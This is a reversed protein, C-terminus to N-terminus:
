FQKLLRDIYDLEPQPRDREAGRRRLEDQIARTRQQEMEEPVMADASEDAGSTGEKLRRGLPDRRSNQSHQRSGLGKGPRQTGRGNMNQDDDGEQGDANADMQGEDGQDGAQPNGFQKALAQSMEKGGKQLAEIARQGDRQAEADDGRALAGAGDRMASDAEGLSKPVEGTLDGFQQALEGLARRLAQQVRRDANRQDRSGQSEPKGARPEGGQPTTEPSAQPSTPDSGGDAQDRNQAHDLLGGQRQVMDQLAGMQKHGRQRQQANRQEQATQASKASRLQELMKELEAMEKQADQMRGERAAQRAKEAQREMDRSDLRAAEPDNPQEGQERRLEEVLARMHDRIAQELEALKKDLEQQHEASPEKSAQDLAERVAERAAELARATREAAGEELKLALQWLRSQADEVEAAAIPAERGLLSSTATLALYISLDGGFGDPTEALEMLRASVPTHNRDPDLTLLKRLAMLERALPHEFLREPLLFTEEASEGVQGPADRAVLRAAVELGAWPHASMDQLLVGRASKPAGNPLPIAITVPPAQPRERLRLEATLSVVGYDDATEWPLRVRPTRGAEPASAGPPEPFTATPPQDAVVTLTWGALEHGGRRAVLRGSHNLSLEAQFSGADLARFPTIAGNLVVEPAPADPPGGTVSVTLRSGAPIGAAGGAPRLFLPPVGTYAPPTVWAQLEAVPAPPPKPLEIRLAESLRAPAEAGAIGLAAVVAVSLGGRLARRDVAALGPHPWGVRLRGIRAAARAVHARWLAEGAEGTPAPQDLLATLPRHKLSSAREVRRDAADDTPRALGRLGRLLWLVGAGVALLLALHLAPPLLSPLGVLALCLFLGVLGLAPWIAPWTQEFRLVQRALWRARSIRRLLAPTASSNKPAETM